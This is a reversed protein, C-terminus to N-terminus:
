LMNGIFFVNIFIGEIGGKNERLKMVYVIELYFGSIIWKCRLFFNWM